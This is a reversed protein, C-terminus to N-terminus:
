PAPIVWVGASDSTQASWGYVIKDKAKNLYFNADALSALVKPAASTATDAAELDGQGGAGGGGGAVYNDNFVVKTGTTALGFWVNMGLTTATGGATPMSKYPGVDQV